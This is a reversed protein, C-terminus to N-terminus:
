LLVLLPTQQSRVLSEPVITSELEGLPLYKWYLHQYRSM